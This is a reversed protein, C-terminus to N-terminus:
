GLLLRHISSIFYSSCFFGCCTKGAFYYRDKQLIYFVPDNKINKKPTRPISTSKKERKEKSEAEAKVREMPMLSGYM